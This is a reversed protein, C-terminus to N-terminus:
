DLPPAQFGPLIGERVLARAVDLLRMDSWLPGAIQIGIPLGRDDSGAPASLAPLGTLNFPGLFRGHGWYSVERGEVEIRVNKEQHPFATTMAPPLILADFDAFFGQWAAILADRRQLAGLYWALTRQEDRLTAHPDFLGTIMGTLDGFLGNMERWDIEPLREVVRAGASRAEGAVREVQARVERAVTAGPLTPAVALRLGKLGVTRPAALPVPPVDGDRGDPGAIIRLAVQLDGIDRAMPGTCSVIRAVRPVGPVTFLGASSVRHETTKLGYIGCFHAPMRISGALDTGIDLPTLGAALAAAAGGSSGGPTRGVDWPNATRGFLANASQYDGMWPPVNTHAMLIAGAARLRAAVTGDETAVRDMLPTGLTTRLGAVDHGDKLTMPVGHLPGRIKGRRVAADAQRAEQVARGADLSVIARLAPNHREIRDLHARVVELSSLERRRIKLALVRAPLLCPDAIARKM